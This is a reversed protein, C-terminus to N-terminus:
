IVVVLLSRNYKWQLKIGDPPPACLQLTHTPRTQRATCFVYSKCSISATGQANSSLHECGAEIGDQVARNSTATYEAARHQPISVHDPATFEKVSPLLWASLIPSTLLKYTRRCHHIVTYPPQLGNYTGVIPFLICPRPRPLMLSWNITGCPRPRELDKPIKLVQM